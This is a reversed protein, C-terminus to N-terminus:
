LHLHTRNASLGRWWDEGLRENTCFLGQTCTTQETGYEEIAVWALRRAIPRRRGQAISFAAAGAAAAPRRGFGMGSFVRRTIRSWSSPATPTAINWALSGEKAIAASGNGGADANL